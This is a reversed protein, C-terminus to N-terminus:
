PQSHGFSFGASSKGRPKQFSRAAHTACYSAGPKAVPEECFRFAPDRPEGMPWCCPASRRTPVAVPAAAPLAPASPQPAQPKTTTIERAVCERDRKCPPRPANESSSKRIPSDRGQLKLRHSRGIISNRSMHMREAIVNCPAGTAWLEALKADMVPTWRQSFTM